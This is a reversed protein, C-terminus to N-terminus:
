QDVEQRVSKEQEILADVSAQRAAIQAEDKGDIAAILSRIAGQKEEFITAYEENLDGLQNEYTTYELKQLNAQNFHIPAQTFQFFVFIEHVLSFM